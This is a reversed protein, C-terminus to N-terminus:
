KALSDLIIDLMYNRESDTYRGIKKIQHTVAATVDSTTCEKQLLLDDFASDLCFALMEANPNIYEKGVKFLNKAENFRNKIENHTLKM